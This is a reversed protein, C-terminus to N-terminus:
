DDSWILVRDESSRGQRRALPVCCFWKLVDFICVFVCGVNLAAQVIKALILGAVGGCLGGVGGWATSRNCGVACLWLVGGAYGKRESKCTLSCFWM